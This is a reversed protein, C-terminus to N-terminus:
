NVKNSRKKTEYWINDLVKEEKNDLSEVEDGAKLNEKELRELIKEIEKETIASKDKKIQAFAVPFTQPIMFDNNDFVLSYCILFTM